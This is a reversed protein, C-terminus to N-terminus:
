ELISFRIPRDLSWIKLIQDTLIFFISIIIYFTDAVGMTILHHHAFAIVSDSCIQRVFVVMVDGHEILIIKCAETTLFHPLATKLVLM